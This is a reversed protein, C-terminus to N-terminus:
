PERERVRRELLIFLGLWRFVFCFLVTRRVYPRFLFIPRHSSLATSFLHFIFSFSCLMNLSSDDLRSNSHLSYMIRQMRLHYQICTRKLKIIWFPVRDNKERNRTFGLIFSKPEKSNFNSNWHMSVALFLASSVSSWVRIYAAIAVTGSFWMPYECFAADATTIMTCFSACMSACM